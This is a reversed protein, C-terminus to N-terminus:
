PPRHESRDHVLGLVLVRGDHEFASLSMALPRCEGSVARCTLTNTTGYGHQVVRAVFAQLQALEGRHISSVPTARQQERTYGLLACAAANAALFRDEAPDLILAPEGTREIIQAPSGATTM